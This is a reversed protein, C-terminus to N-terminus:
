KREELRQRILWLEQALINIDCLEFSKSWWACEEQLCDSAQSDRTLHQSARAAVIIPCKMGEGGNLAGRIGLEYKKQATLKM